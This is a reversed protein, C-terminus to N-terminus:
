DREQADKYPQPFLWVEGRNEAEMRLCAERSIWANGGEWSAHLWAVGKEDARRAWDRGHERVAEDLDVAPPRAPGNAPKGPCPLPGPRASLWVAAPAPPAEAPANAKQIREFM